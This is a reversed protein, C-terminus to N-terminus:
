ANTRSSNAYSYAPSGAWIAMLKEVAANWTFTSSRDRIRAHLASHRDPEDVYNAIVDAVEAATADPAFLHGCGEPITDSIGGVNRALVPVGLHLSERNSIGFAEASSFLCTFHCSRIFDLFSQPQARKDIYGIARLLRHRPGHAPAFGAAIVEVNVGRAHLIEAIELVFPLNKRRWDKGLFGLRLPSFSAPQIKVLGRFNEHDANSGGPVVHVKDPSIGYREVVSRAAWASMCVIRKALLYQEKERAMADAMMQSCVARCEAIGYEEFNQALTADIYYSVPADYTAPPFLPFHSIVEVDNGTPNAQTLLRRLFDDSYQFGGSEGHRLRHRVNWMLRRVRLRKPDLRWGADIFGARRAANLFHFPTGSWTAPSAADGICTLIRM